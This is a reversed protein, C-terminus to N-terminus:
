RCVLLFPALTAIEKLPGSPNDGVDFKLTGDAIASLKEERSKAGVFATGLSGDTGNASYSECGFRGERFPPSPVFYSSEPRM